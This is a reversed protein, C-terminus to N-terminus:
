LPKKSMEPGWVLVAVGAIAMVVGVLGLVGGLGYSSFISVVAYPTAITALRGATNCIGTGRMRLDTPFLEPVYLAWGIAVLFYIATVLAFGAVVFLTENSAQSYGIALVIIAVITGTIAARRPLRDALVFGLAAGVPGGLSMLTTFGLSAAVSHGQKVFITPLWTILGYLAVSVAICLVSGAIVRGLLEGSFLETISRAPKTSVPVAAIPPLNGRVAAEAEFGSLIKEAEEHRGQSELWRPSEPMSKRMQWVVLAGVGALIFMARWGLNPIIVYGLLASVFLASNTFVSLGSLWRGRTSPPVFETLTAYGVVIEAGLGIGMVLRAAILWNMSPAAAAALAGVGFILLNLQYSFRRGYRDGLVGAFWTGIVMGVFTASIFNANSALDSWGEKVLVGLVGGALYIEFADLFMGYAILRLLRWHFPSVPLRDLRPGVQAYYNAVQTDDM